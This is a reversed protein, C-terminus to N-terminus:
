WATNQMYQKYHILIIYSNQCANGVLMWLWLWVTVMSVLEKYPMTERERESENEAGTLPRTNQGNNEYTVTYPLNIQKDKKTKNCVNTCM